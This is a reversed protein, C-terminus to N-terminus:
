QAVVQAFTKTKGFEAQFGAYAVQAEKWQKGTFLAEAATWCKRAAIELEGLEIVELRELYPNVADGLGAERAAKFFEKSKAPDNAALFLLGRRHLDEAKEAGDQAPAFANIDAAELQDPGVTMEPGDALKLAIGKVSSDNQVKGSLSSKGCRITVTKGN